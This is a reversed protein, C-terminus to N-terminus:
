WNVVQEDREVYVARVRGHEDYHFRVARGSVLTKLCSKMETFTLYPELVWASAIIAVWYNSGRRDKIKRRTHYEDFSINSLDPTGFERHVEDRTLLADADTGSGAIMVSCGTPLACLALSIGAIVTFRM